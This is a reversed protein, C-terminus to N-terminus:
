VLNLTLESLFAIAGIRLFPIIRKDKNIYMYIYWYKCGFIPLFSVIIGKINFGGTIGQNIIETLVSYFLIM